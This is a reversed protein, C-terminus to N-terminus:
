PIQYGDCMTNDFHTCLGDLHCACPTIGKSRLVRPFERLSENPRFSTSTTNGSIERQEKGSHLICVNEWQLISDWYLFPVIIDVGYQYDACQAGAGRAILRWLFNRNIAEPNRLKIFHNFYIRSNCFTDEFTKNTEDCTQAIIPKSGLVDEHSTEALLERIFDNVPIVRSQLRKAATDCAELLTIM